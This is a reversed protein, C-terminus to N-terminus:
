IIIFFYEEILNVFIYLINTNGESFSRKTQLGLDSSHSFHMWSDVYAVISYLIQCIISILYVM